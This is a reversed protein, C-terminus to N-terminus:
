GIYNLGEGFDLAIDFNYFQFSVEFTNFKPANENYSLSINTMGSLIPHNFVISSVAYGENNLLTLRIPDLTIGQPDVVSPKGVGSLSRRLNTPELNGQDLYNLANDLFIFYNLYADSLKFKITFKREFMEAIPKASHFEQMKGLPRVQSVMPVTFGNFTVSQITSAMFDEITEYPMILSNYYKEYKKSIAKSFFTEPFSILFGNQRASLIM